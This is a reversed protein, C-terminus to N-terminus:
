RSGASARAAGAGCTACPRLLEVVDNMSLLWLGAVLLLAAWLLAFGIEPATTVQEPYVLRNAIFLAPDALLLAEGGVLLRLRALTRRSMTEGGESGFCYCPLVSGRRLTLQVVAAFITLMVLGAPVALALLFGTLHSVALLGEMPILLLALGYALWRPLLRYEAVARAFGLPDRLKGGTSLLFVAGLALQVVLRVEAM